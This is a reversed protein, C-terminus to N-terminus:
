SEHPAVEKPSHLNENRDHPESSLLWRLLSRSAPTRASSEAPPEERATLWGLFGPHRHPSVFRNPLPDRSALWHLFDTHRRPSESRSPLPDRSALWRLFGRRRPPSDTRSPLPDPSALWAVPTPGTNQTSSEKEDRPLEDRDVIWQGFELFRRWLRPREAAAPPTPM